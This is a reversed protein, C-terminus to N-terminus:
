QQLSIHVMQLHNLVDGSAEAVFQQGTFLKRGTQEASHQVQSLCWCVLVPVLIMALCCVVLRCVYVYM